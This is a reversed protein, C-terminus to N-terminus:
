RKVTAGFAGARGPQSRYLDRGTRAHHHRRPTAPDDQRFAGGLARPPRASEGERLTGIMANTLLRVIVAIFVLSISVGLLFRFDTFGAFRNNVLGTMEAYGMAFYVALTVAVFAALARWKMLGGALVMTAALAVTASDHVGDRIVPGVGFTVLMLVPLAAGALRLRGQRAALILASIAFIEALLVIVVRFDGVLLNNLTAVVSAALFLLAAINFL